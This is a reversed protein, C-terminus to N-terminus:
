VIVGPPMLLVPGRAVLAPHRALGRRLRWWSWSGGPSLQVAMRGVAEEVAGAIGVGQDGLRSPEADLRQRDGIVVAHVSHNPQGLSGSAGSDARHEPRLQTEVQGLALGTSGVGLAAMQQHEGTVGLTVAAQGAGDAGSLHAAPLFAARDVVFALQCSGVVAVPDHEGAAALTRHRRRECSVARFAGLVFEVGQDLHEAAVVDHDLEDVVVLREVVGSVVCQEVQGASRPHAHDRRVVHVVGRGSVGRQGLHERRDPRAAAEVLHGAPQRRVAGCVEAGPALHGGPQGPEGAHPLGGDLEGSCASEVEAHDGRVQRIAGDSLAM